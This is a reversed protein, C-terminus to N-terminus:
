TVVASGSGPETKTQPGDTSSPANANQTQSQSDDHRQRKNSPFPNAGLFSSADEHPHKRMGLGAVAIRNLTNFQETPQDGPASRQGQQQTQQHHQQQRHQEQQPLGSQALAQAANAPASPAASMQPRPQTLDINGPLEPVENQSDILRSQLNIIYERLQYNEAQIAKFNESLMEYDKVQEELKRIYGEKRQRFARQAARNQAARKSTSLERKGYIKRNEANEDGGSEAGTGIMAGGAIAPDINNDRPSTSAQLNQHSPHQSTPTHQPRPAQPHPSLNHQAALLQDHLVQYGQDSVDQTLPHRARSRMSQNAM